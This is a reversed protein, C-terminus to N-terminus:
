KKLSNLNEWGYSILPKFFYAEEALDQICIENIGVKSLINSM